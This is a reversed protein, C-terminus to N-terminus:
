KALDCDAGVEVWENSTCQALATQLASMLADADALEAPPNEYEYSPTSREGDRLLTITTAGGDSCDPCGYTEELSVSLLSAALRRIANHAKPTLVGNVSYSAEPENDSITLQITDCGDGAAINLQFRCERTCEGFSDRAAEIIPDRSQDSCDEVISPEAQCLWVQQGCSACCVSGSPCVCPNIDAVTCQTGPECNVDSAGECRQYCGAELPNPDIGCGPTLYEQPDPCVGSSSTATDESASPDTASGEALGAETTTTDAESSVCAPLLQLASLAALLAYRPSVTHWTM